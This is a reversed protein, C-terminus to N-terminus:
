YKIKNNKKVMISCDSVTTKMLFADTVKLVDDLPIEKKLNDLRLCVYFYKTFKKIIRLILRFLSSM